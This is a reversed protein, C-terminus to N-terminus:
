PQYKRLFSNLGIQDVKEKTIRFAEADALPGILVRFIADSPGPAAFSPFGRKRLGDVMIVAVGKEVAGMQLYIANASPNAFVPPEIESSVPRVPVVNEVPEPLPFDPTKVVTAQLVPAVPATALEPRAAAKPSLARGAMYSIASFIVVVVTAVFLVSAVQARGLVIEFEERHEEAVAVEVPEEVTEQAPEETLVPSEEVVTAVPESAPPESVPDAESRAEEAPVDLQLISLM